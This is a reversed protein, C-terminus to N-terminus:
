YNVIISLGDAQSDLPVISDWPCYYSFCIRVVVDHGLPAAVMGVPRRFGRLEADLLDRSYGRSASWWSGM